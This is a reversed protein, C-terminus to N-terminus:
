NGHWMAEWGQAVSTVMKIWCNPPIPVTQPYSGRSLDARHHANEWCEIATLLETRVGM